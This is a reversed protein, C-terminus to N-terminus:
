LEKSGERGTTRIPQIQSTLSTALINIHAYVQYTKHTQKDKTSYM